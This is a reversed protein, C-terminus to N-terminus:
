KKGDKVGEPFNLKAYEGYLEIAKKDYARAAEEETQFRGINIHKHDKGISSKWKSVQKDWVVGKFKSKGRKSCRNAKNQSQTVRRLNEERNDLTNGNIHDVQDPHGVPVKLILRHMLYGTLKNGQKFRTQAYVLGSKSTVINWKFQSLMEYLDDDVKAEHNKGVKITRM